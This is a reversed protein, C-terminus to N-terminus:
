YILPAYLGITRAVTILSQCSRTSSTASGTGPGPCTNVFTSAQPIQPLSRCMSFCPASSRRNATSSSASDGGSGIRGIGNSGSASVTM